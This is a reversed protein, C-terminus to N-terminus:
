GSVDVQLLQKKVTGKNLAASKASRKYLDLARDPRRRLRAASLGRFLWLEPVHPM